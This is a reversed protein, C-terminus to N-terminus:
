SLCRRAGAQFRVVIGRNHLWYQPWLVSQAIGGESKRFFLFNRNHIITNFYLWQGIDVFQTYETKNDRQKTTQDKPNWHVGKKNRIANRRRPASPATNMYVENECKEATHEQYQQKHKHFAPKNQTHLSAERSSSAKCLSDTTNGKINVGHRIQATDLFPALSLAVVALKQGVSRNRSDTFGSASPSTFHPQKCYSVHSPRPQRPWSLNTVWTSAWRRKPKVNCLGITNHLSSFHVPNQKLFKNYNLRNITFRCYIETSM